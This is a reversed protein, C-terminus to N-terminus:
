SSDRDIDVLRIGIRREQQRCGGKSRVVLRGSADVIDLQYGTRACTRRRPSPLV